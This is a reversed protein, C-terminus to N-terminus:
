TAYKIYEASGQLDYLSIMVKTNGLM